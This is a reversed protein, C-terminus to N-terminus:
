GGAKGRNEPLLGKEYLAFRIAAAEGKTIVGDKDTDMQKNQDYAPEGKIGIVYSDAKGLAKPYFTYIFVDNMTRLKGKAKGYFVRAYELQELDTMLIFTDFGVGVAPKAWQRMLGFLGGGITKKGISALDTRSKGDSNLHAQPLFRSEGYFQTMLFSPDTKVERAIDIVRQSFESSPSRRGWALHQLDYVEDSM